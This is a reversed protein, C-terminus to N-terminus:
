KSPDYEPCGDTDLEQTATAIKGAREELYDMATKKAKYAEDAEKYDAEALGQLRVRESEEYEDKEENLVEFKYELDGYSTELARLGAEM